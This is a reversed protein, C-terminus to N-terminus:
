RTASHPLQPHQHQHVIVQHRGLVNGAVIQHRDGPLRLVVDDGCQALHPVVHVREADAVIELDDPAGHFFPLGIDHEVHHLREVLEAGEVVVDDRIELQQAHRVRSAIRAPEHQRAVLRQRFGDEVVMADPYRIEGDDM